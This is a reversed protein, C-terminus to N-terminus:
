VRPASQPIENIIYLCGVPHLGFPFRACVCNRSHLAYTRNHRGCGLTDATDLTNATDGVDLTDATDGMDLKDLTDGM